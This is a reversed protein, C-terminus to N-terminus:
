KTECGQPGSVIEEIGDEDLSFVKAQDDFKQFADPMSGAREPMSYLADSLASTEATLLALINKTNFGLLRNLITATVARKSTTVSNKRASSECIALTDIRAAAAKLYGVSREKWWKLANRELLLLDALSRRLKSWQKGCDCVVNSDTTLQQNSHGGLRNDCRISDCVMAARLLVRSGFASSEV